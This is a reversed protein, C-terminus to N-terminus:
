PGEFHVAGNPAESIDCLVSVRRVAGVAVGASVSGGATVVAWM